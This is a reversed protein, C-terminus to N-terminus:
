EGAVYCYGCQISDHGIPIHQVDGRVAHHAAELCTVKVLVHQEASLRKERAGIGSCIDADRHNIGADKRVRVLLNDRGVVEDGAVPGFDAGLIRVAM